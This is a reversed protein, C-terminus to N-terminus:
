YAQFYPYLKQAVSKLTLTMQEMKSYWTEADVM